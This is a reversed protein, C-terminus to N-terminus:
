LEGAGSPGVVTSPTDLTQQRDCAPFNLYRCCLLLSFPKLSVFSAERAIVLVRHMIKEKMGDRNKGKNLTRSSRGIGQDLAIAGPGESVHFPDLWLHM